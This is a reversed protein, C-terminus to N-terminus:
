KAKFILVTVQAMDFNFYQHPAPSLCCGFSGKRGVVCQWGGEGLENEVRDKILGAVKGHVGPKDLDGVTEVGKKAISVILLADDQLISFYTGGSEIYNIGVHYEQHVVSRTLRAIM